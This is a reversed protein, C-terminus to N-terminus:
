KEAACRSREVLVILASIGIYGSLIKARLSTKLM